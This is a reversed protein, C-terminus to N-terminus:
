LKIFININEHGSMAIYSDRNWPTPINHFYCRLIFIPGGELVFTQDLTWTRRYTNVTQDEDILM